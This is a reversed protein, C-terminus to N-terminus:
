DGRSATAPESPLALRWLSIQDAALVQQGDDLLQLAEGPEFPYDTRLPSLREQRGDSLARREFPQASYLWGDRVMFPGEVATTYTSNDRQWFRVAANTKDVRSDYASLLHDNQLDFLAAMKIENVAVTHPDARGFWTQRQWPNRWFASMFLPALRQFEGTAPEYSWIGMSATIAPPNTLAPVRPLGSSLAMVLRHRGPDAVLGVTLFPPQDDLPSLHESRRSSALVDVKRTAPDYAALYGGRGPEGAGIYLRGDLFAVAQVDDSPLGNTTGLHEVSGDKTPFIYVGSGTAAFYCDAGVCASRVFDYSRSMANTERAIRYTLLSNRYDRSDPYRDNLNLLDFHTRGLFAPPGGALPVRLLQLSDEPAGWEQVGVTVAFVQGDAVVPQFLWACGNIPKALDLLCVSEKWPSATPANPQTGALEAALQDRKQQLDTIVESRNAYSSNLKPYAAPNERILKLAGDVVEMEGALNLYREDALREVAGYFLFPRIDKHAFAFRCAELYEDGCHPHNLFLALNNEIAFWAHNRLPESKAAEESLLWQQAYLRFEREVALSEDPPHYNGDQTAAVRNARAYLRIVPDSDQELTQRFAEVQDGHYQMFFGIFSTNQVVAYNGSGDPPNLKHSLEVWHGLVTVADSQGLGAQMWWAFVNQSYVDFTTKDVSQRLLFPELIEMILTREKDKLGARETMRAPDATYVEALKWRLEKLRSLYATSNKLVEPMPEGPRTQAAAERSLDLLLDAGRRGLALCTALNEGSPRTSLPRGNGPDGPDILEIAADPLLLAMENQWNTQEPALALAADLVHVAALYDRHRLLLEYERHFRAAERGRDAPRGDPPVKLFEETQVALLQALAAPDRTPVRATIRNAPAGDARTLSLTGRLGDGDRSVDLQLMRLSSWLRNDEADPATSREQNVQELRRRELVALGPSATLERELLLGVSDCISDYERPLDANRVSLLGVTQMDQTSRRAKAVAARVAAATATAASVTNSAGLATDAYRVGTKADFVVLGLSVASDAENTLAGELVAFLDVHLLQGAKVADEARVLGALSIEQERLVRDGERRDLLQLDADGSLQAIATDLVQQVGLSDGCVLAMRTAARAAQLCATAIFILLLWKVPTIVPTPHRKM